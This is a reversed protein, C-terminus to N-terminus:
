HALETGPNQCQALSNGGGPLRLLFDFESNDTRIGAPGDFLFTEPPLTNRWVELGDAHVILTDGDIEARLTHPEGVAVVPVPVPTKPRLNIYGRDLCEVHTRQGPNYKVSVAIGPTPAVHWMVYVINCTDQARLKVGIQQRLEGNALRAIDVSDGRFVFAVEVARSSDSAIVGRMGGTKVNLAEGGASTVRGATACFTSAAVSSLRLFSAGDPASPTRELRTLLNSISQVEPATDVAVAEEAATPAPATEEAVGPEPDSDAAEVESDGADGDVEADAAHADRSADAARADRRDPARKTVLDTTVQGETEAQDSDEAEGACGVKPTGFSAAILIVALGGAIWWLRRSQRPRGLQAM